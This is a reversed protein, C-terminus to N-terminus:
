WTLLTSLFNRSCFRATSRCQDSSPKTRWINLTTTTSPTTSIAFSSNGCATKISIIHSHTFKFFPFELALIQFEGLVLVVIPLFFKRVLRSLRRKMLQSESYGRPGPKFRTYTDGDKFFLIFFRKNSLFSTVFKQDAGSAAVMEDFRRRFMKRERERSWKTGSALAM